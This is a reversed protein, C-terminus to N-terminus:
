NGPTTIAEAPRAGLHQRGSASRMTLVGLGIVTFCAVSLGALTTREGLADAVVGIPYAAISNFGFAMMTLAMVRGLYAGDTREMLNVNNLLQFGSSSAGLLAAM